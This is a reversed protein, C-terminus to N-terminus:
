NGTTKFLFTRGAPDSLKKQLNELLLYAQPAIYMTGSISSALEVNLWGPEVQVNQSVRASYGPLEFEFKSGALECFQWEEPVSVSFVAKRAFPTTFWYPLTRKGATRILDAFGADPLTFTIFNGSKKWFDDVTFRMETKGPYLEFNRSKELIEGGALVGSLRQEWFQQEKKPKVNAFFRNYEAYINGYYSESLTFEARGEPLMKVVWSSHLKDQFEPGCGILSFIEGNACNLAIKGAHRYSELVSYEDNDNLLLEGNESQVILIVTDFFNCPLRQFNAEAAPVDPVGSALITEINEVGISKLMAYFLVARDLSNGYGERLTTDAPTIYKLGLVDLELGAHRINKEIYDRLAKVKERLSQKGATLKEATEAAMPAHAAAREITQVVKRCYEYNDFWSIGAFPSFFEAPPTGPEQPMMIQDGSYVKVSCVRRSSSKVIRFGADPLALRLKKRLKEPYKFEVVSNVVPLKRWLSYVYSSDPRDFFRIRWQYEIISGPKVGPLPVIIKKGQPYRPAANSGVDMVKVTELEVPVTNGEPSVVSGTIFEATSVGDVFPVTIESFDKVGSYDLVKIKQKCTVVYSKLSEINVEIESNELVAPAAPFEVQKDDFSRKVIIRNNEAKLYDLLAKRFAAYEGAAVEVKKLKVGRQASLVRGKATVSNRIELLQDDMNEYEPLAIVKLAAPLELQIDEHVGATSFLQLPYRRAALMSDDLMFNLAGFGNSLYPMRLLGAGWQIDVFDPVSSEIILKFEKGLDRVDEPLIEVRKVVAGPLAKKLASAIFQRRYEPTWRAFAGRYINDNIGKFILETKLVLQYNEDIVGRSRVLLMNKEPAIVPTRRLIDGQATACLFSKDMAYAPLLESSNEDTPDMLILEGDPMKVGTIAHNFYNNPIEGDKPDGAMFLVMFSEFGVERLMAALLAAKDRCVGHKQAFTDKVDHPEYGPATDENTVGTYRIEKSVFDFLARIAAKGQKGEALKRAHKVLEPSVAKLRAECLDHYWRSITQWDKATSTLVRMAHLYWPPMDPEPVIQPVNDADFEYVIRGNEKRVSKKLTGKVEDKVAISQLPCKEPASIRYKYRLVPATSQLVAIDCWVGKMRPRVTQMSWKAHVIDGVALDPIGVNLVKNAPDYINSQMQGPEITINKQLAPKLIRGDPKIVSIDIVPPKNYFSNFHLTITRMDQRGADTVILTWSEDNRQYTGDCNYSVEELDDLLITHADPYRKLDLKRWQKAPDPAVVEAVAPVAPAGPSATDADPAAGIAPDFIGCGSNLSILLLLFIHFIVKKLM